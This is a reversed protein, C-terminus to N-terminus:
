IMSGPQVTSRREERVADEFVGPKDKREFKTQLKITLMKVLGDKGTRGLVDIFDAFRYANNLPIRSRM